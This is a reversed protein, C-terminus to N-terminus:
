CMFISFVAFTTVFYYKPHNDLLAYRVYTKHCLEFALGGSRYCLGVRGCWMLLCYYSCMDISSDKGSIVSANSGATLPVFHTPKLPGIVAHGPSVHGPSIYGSTTSVTPTSLSPVITSRHRLQRIEPTPTPPPSIVAAQLPIDDTVHHQQPPILPQPHHQHHQQLAHLDDVVMSQQDDQNSVEPMLESEEPPDSIYPVYFIFM